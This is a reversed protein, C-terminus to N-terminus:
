KIGGIKHIQTLIRISKLPIPDEFYLDCLEQYTMYGWCPQLVLPITLNNDEVFTKVFTYDDKDAIVAKVQGKREEIASVIRSFVPINSTPNQSSPPKIDASIFDCERLIDKYLSGNTEVCIKYGTDRLMFVLEDIDQLLPEGGTLLVWTCYGNDNETVAETIEKPTKEIGKEWAYRTDCWECSLNCGSLRVFVTPAGILFGEGNLSFFIESVKLTM